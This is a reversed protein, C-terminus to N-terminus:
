PLCQRCHVFIPGTHRGFERRFLLSVNHPVNHLSIRITDSPLCPTPRLKKNKCRYATTPTSSREATLGELHKAAPKWRPEIRTGVWVTTGCGRTSVNPDVLQACCADCFFRPLQVFQCVHNKGGIKCATSCKARGNFKAADAAEVKLGSSYSKMRM